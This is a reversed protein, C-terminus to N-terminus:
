ATAGGQMPPAFFEAFGGTGFGSDTAIADAGVATVSLGFATSGNGAIVGDTSYTGGLSSTVGCEVSNTGTTNCEPTGDALAPSALVFALVFASASALQQTRKM